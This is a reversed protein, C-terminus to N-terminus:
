AVVAVAPRITCAGPTVDAIATLLPSDAGPLPITSAISERYARPVTRGASSDDCGGHRRIAAGGVELNRVSGPCGTRSLIVALMAGPCPGPRPGTEMVSVIM